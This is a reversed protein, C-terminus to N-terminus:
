RTVTGNGPKAPTAPTAANTAPAKKVEDKAATAPKAGHDKGPQATTSQAVTTTAQQGAAFAPAAVLALAVAATFLRIM